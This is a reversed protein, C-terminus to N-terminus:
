FESFAVMKRVRVCPFWRLLDEKLSVAYARLIAGCDTIKKEDSTLFTVLIWITRTNTNLMGSVQVCRM